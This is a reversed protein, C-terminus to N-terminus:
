FCPALTIQALISVAQDIPLTGDQRARVEFRATGTSREFFIFLKPHVMFIETFPQESQLKRSGNMPNGKQWAYLRM